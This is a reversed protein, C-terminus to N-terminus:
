FSANAAESLAFEESKNFDFMQSTELLLELYLKSV